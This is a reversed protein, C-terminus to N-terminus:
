RTSVASPGFSAGACEAPTARHAFFQSVQLREFGLADVDETFYDRFKLPRRHKIRDPLIGRDHQADRLLRKIWPLDWEWQQM